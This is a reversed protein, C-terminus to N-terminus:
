ARAMDMLSRVQPADAPREYEWTDADAYGPLSAILDLRLRQCLDAAMSNSWGPHECSQYEYGRIAKLLAVPGLGQGGTLIMRHRYDEPHTKDIPGPLTEFDEGNYRYQVSAINELMLMRGTETATLDDVRHQHMTLTANHPDATYGTIRRLIMASVLLDIHDTGVINASM